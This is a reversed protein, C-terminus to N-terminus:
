QKDYKMKSVVKKGDPGTLTLTTTRTKGDPALVITGTMVVTGAKKETLKFSHSSVVAMARTDGYPDGSVPYDKGDFKGTWETHAPGNPGVGDTTIKIQDGVSEYVVNTNKPGGSAITSKAENLKWTGINPNEARSAAAGSFCLALTLALAKAHM